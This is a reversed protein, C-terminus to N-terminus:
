KEQKPPSQRIDFELDLALTEIEGGIVTDPPSNVILQALRLAKEIVGDNPTSTPTSKQNAKTLEQAIVTLAAAIQPVHRDYFRQGMKTEHFQPM